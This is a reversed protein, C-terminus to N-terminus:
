IRRWFYLGATFFMVGMFVVTLAEDSGKRVNDIFDNLGQTISEVISNGKLEVTVPATVQPSDVNINVGDAM